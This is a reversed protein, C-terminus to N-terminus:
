ELVVYYGDEVKGEQYLKLLESVSYGYTIQFHPYDPMSEWNGGWEFGLEDGIAEVKEWEIDYNLDNNTIRVLDIALGYNHYSFGGKANTVIAGGNGDRGQYYLANQEEITRLGQSIRIDPHVDQVAVIFNIVRQRIKPHLKKIRDATVKDIIDEYSYNMQIVQGSTVPTIIGGHRCFLISTMNIGSIIGLKDDMFKLYSEETPLNDWASNLNILAKCTGEIMCSSDSILKRWEEGNHPENKCNCRFPLINKNMKCDVITAHCLDGCCKAKPNETVKLITKNSPFSVQYGKGGLIKVEPTAMNCKLIAGDVLYESHEKPYVTKMYLDEAVTEKETYCREIAENYLKKQIDSADIRNGRDDIYISM